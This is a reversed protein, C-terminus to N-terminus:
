IQGNGIEPVSTATNLPLSSQQIISLWTCQSAYRSPVNSEGGWSSNVRPRPPPACHALESPSTLMVERFGMVLALVGGGVKPAMFGEPPAEGGRALGRMRTGSIFDFDEKRHPDFFAMAKAKTDYAAVKFPIIELQDLGPAMALVKGGHTPEYIDRKPPDPHPMGAPDRGVIYFNAGTVMRAKAHWQVETPGAYMMPSPFIALVTSDPDLVGEDMIAKHQEMRTVLPVDDDKTWGGLPHLLLVPKKFGREVLQRKCDTMLLAHGNHIPNRLQFAFVADAEMERFREKLQAPTLRYQDLGDGWTVRGLVDVEGGVLWDGSEKILQVYPHGENYMGFQRACREEKRHAYFEPARVIARAQGQYTLTFAGGTKELREKDQSTIPLVIPVSQNVVGDDLLCNFHQCQLFERERMFGTLPTAWGEALVQLWQMDLSTVEVSALSAAELVAAELKEEPVTLEMVKEVASRPVIGEAQLVEVIQQVCDDVSRGETEIRLEPNEPLEYPQDIGTFGKIIGARAKKYLGKVDRKECEELSTAIHCEIFPLGVSQHLQRGLERDKNYPSVFSCLAVVGSDAFLKAVEGVRRINEERDEPAFGLNKNLGTRVNDGDLGYSPIGRAVLYEELAFAITTKGAGSLGTFWITCGRFGGRAGLVEGRKTRSVLHKEATVNTAKQVNQLSPTLSTTKTPFGDNPFNQM